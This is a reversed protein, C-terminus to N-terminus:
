RWIDASSVSFIFKYIKLLIDTSYILCKQVFNGQLCRYKGVIPNDSIVWTAQVTYLKRFVFIYKEPLVEYEENKWFHNYAQPNWFKFPAPRDLETFWHFALAGPLVSTYRLRRKVKGECKRINRGKKFLIRVFSPYSKLSLLKCLINLSYQHGHSTLNSHFTM